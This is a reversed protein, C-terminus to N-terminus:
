NSEWNPSRRVALAIGALIFLAGVWDLLGPIENYLLISLGTGVLPMGFGLIAVQAAPVLRLGRAILLNAVLTLLGYLLVFGWAWWGLPLFRDELVGFPLATLAAGITTWATVVRSDNRRCLRGTALLSGAYFFAALLALLNGEVSSSGEGSDFCLLALGLFALGGGIALWGSIRERFLAWGGLAVLFPYIMVLLTAEMISTTLVARNWIVIDAGLLV